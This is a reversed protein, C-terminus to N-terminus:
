PSHGCGMVTMLMVDREEANDDGKNSSVNDHFVTSLYLYASATPVYDASASSMILLLQCYDVKSPFDTVSLKPQINTLDSILRAIESGLPPFDTNM